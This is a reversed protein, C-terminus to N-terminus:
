WVVQWLELTPFDYICWMLITKLKFHSTGNYNAVDCVWVGKHWLLQLEELLPQLCMDMNDGIM